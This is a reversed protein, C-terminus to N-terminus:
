ANNKAATQRETIIEESRNTIIKPLVENRKSARFPQTKTKLWFPPFSLYYHFRCMQRNRKTKYHSHNSRSRKSIM